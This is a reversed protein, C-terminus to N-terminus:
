PEYEVGFQPVDGELYVWSYCMNGLVYFPAVVVTCTRYQIYVVFVLLVLLLLLPVVV